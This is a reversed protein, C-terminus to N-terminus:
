RGPPRVRLLSIRNKIFAFSFIAECHLRLHTPHKAMDCHQRKGHLDPTKDRNREFLLHGGVSAAAQLDFRRNRRKAGLPRRRNEFFISILDVDNGVTGINGGTQIQM